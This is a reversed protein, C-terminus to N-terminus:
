HPPGRPHVLQLVVCVRRVGELALLQGHPTLRQGNLTLPQGLLTRRLLLLTRRLGLLASRRLAHPHLHCLNLPPPLCTATM